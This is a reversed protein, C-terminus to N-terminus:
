NQGSLRGCVASKLPGQAGVGALCELQAAPSEEQRARQGDAGAHEEQVRHQQQIGQDLDAPLWCGPAPGSTPEPEGTFM